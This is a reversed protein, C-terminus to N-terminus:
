GGDERFFDKLEEIAEFHLKYVAGITRGMKRAIEDYTLNEFYRLVLVERRAPTALRDMGRLLDFRWNSRQVDSMETPVNLRPLLLDLEVLMGEPVRKQQKSRNLQKLSTYRLLTYAWADFETDYPFHSGIIQAAADAACETARVEVEAWSRHGGKRQFCRSWRMLKGYLPQWVAESKVVQVEQVYDHTREYIEAVQWVYDRPERTGQGQLFHRVRGRSLNVAIIPRIEGVLERAMVGYARELSDELNGDEWSM